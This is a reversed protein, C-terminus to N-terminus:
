CTVEGVYGDDHTDVCRALAGTEELIDATIGGLTSSGIRSTSGSARYGYGTAGVGRATSHDFHVTATSAAPPDVDVGVATSGVARFLSDRVYLTGATATVRLGTATPNSLVHAEVGDLSGAGAIAVGIGAVSGGVEIAVNDVESDEGDALPAAIRLGEATAVISADRLTASRLLIGTRAEVRVGEVHTGESTQGDIGRAGLTTSTNVVSLDRVVAGDGLALM